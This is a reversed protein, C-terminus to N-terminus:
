NPRKMDRHLAELYVAAVKEALRSNSFESVVWQRAKRGMENRLAADGLLCEMHHAMGAEDGVPVLRGVDGQRSLYENDSVNTAVFPVGCAMSELLVNATGEYRSSLASIHCVPYLLEPDEHHGVFICRDRIQLDDVIRQLHAIYDDLAGKSQIPRDGVLLLRAKPFSDLVLRFARFLMEHNKAPRFNAFAGIVLDHEALKLTQRMATADAPRFRETDVGNHVVRYDSAPRHYLSGNYKAGAQSNAIILDVWRRTFKLGLFERRPAHYFASRESGIIAQTRALRGAARCVVDATYLYGHVVDIRLARLLRALRLIISLDFKNRPKIIHLRHDRDRLKSGLPVYDSLSCVHVDFRDQDLSNALEVVQREAGGYDLDETVLLVRVRSDPKPTSTMGDDTWSDQVATTPNCARIM